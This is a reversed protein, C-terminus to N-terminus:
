HYLRVSWTQQGYRIYGAYLKSGRNGITMTPIVKWTEDLKQGCQYCETRRDNQVRLCEPCMVITIRKEAM